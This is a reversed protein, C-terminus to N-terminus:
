AQMGIRDGVAAAFARTGLAGGLDPTRTAASALAEDLAADIADAAAQLNPEGRRESLWRLLMAVSGILSSPNAQDRGAIDTM